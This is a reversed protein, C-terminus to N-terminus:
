SADDGLLSTELRKMMDYLVDRRRAMDRYRLYEADTMTVTGGDHSELLTQIANNAEEYAEVTLRYKDLLTADNQPDPESM